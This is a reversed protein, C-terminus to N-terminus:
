QASLDPLSKSGQGPERVWRVSVDTQGMQSGQRRGVEGLNSDEMDVLGLVHMGWSSLLEALQSPKEM